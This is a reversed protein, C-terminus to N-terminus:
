LGCASVTAANILGCTSITATCASGDTPAFITRWEAITNYCLDGVSLQKGGGHSNGTAKSLLLNNNLTRAEVGMFNMTLEAPTPPNFLVFGGQGPPFHCGGQSCSFGTSTPNHLIPEICMQYLNICLTTGSNPLPENSADDCGQYLCLPAVAALLVLRLLKM